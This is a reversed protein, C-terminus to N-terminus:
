GLVARNKSLTAGIRDSQNGCRARFDFSRVNTLDLRVIGIVILLQYVANQYKQLIKKGSIRCLNVNKM